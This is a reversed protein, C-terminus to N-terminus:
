LFGTKLDNSDILSKIEHLCNARKRNMENKIGSSSSNDVLCQTHELNSNSSQILADVFSPGAGGM